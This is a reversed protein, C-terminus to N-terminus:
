MCYSPIDTHTTRGSRVTVPVPKSGDGEHTAVVYRGSPVVFRYTHAGKVTQQAIARAAQTLYVTVSLGHYGASAVVGVCPSAVGTITGDPPPSNQTCQALLLEFLCLVVWSWRRAARLARSVV